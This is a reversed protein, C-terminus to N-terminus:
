AAEADRAAIRQELWASVESELWGVARASIPIPKPFQGESILRYITSRPFGTAKEVDQRRLVRQM